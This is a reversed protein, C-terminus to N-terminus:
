AAYKLDHGRNVPIARTEIRRWYYDEWLPSLNTQQVFLRKALVGKETLRRKTLGLIMAPTVYCRNERRLKICNRWVAFIAFRYMSHQRRKGFAITERTHDKLCHRIMMDVVNIEYLPNWRNRPKRSDVTQHDIECWKLKKIAFPYTKHKDSWVVARKTNKLSETLVEVVARMVSGPDARGHAGELFARREKQEDTMTGSRRREAEAFHIIFGTPRDVSAIIEYPHYQSWEFTVLGDIVIDVFPSAKELM